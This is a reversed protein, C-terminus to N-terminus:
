MEAPAEGLVDLGVEHRGFFPRFDEFSFESYLREGVVRCARGERWDDQHDFM